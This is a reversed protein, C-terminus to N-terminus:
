VKEKILIKTKKAMRIISDDVLIDDLEMINIWDLNLSEESITFKKSKTILLFRIDFHYHSLKDKRAPIKHVDIDFIGDQFFYFDSIGSEEIAERLAAEKVNRDSNEIHGGLQLWKDLKKHFTLLTSNFDESLIWASATVHGVSNNQDFFNHNQELFSLLHNKHSEETANYPTYNVVLDFLDYRMRKVKYISTNNYDMNQNTSIKTLKQSNIKV